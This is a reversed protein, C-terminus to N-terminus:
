FHQGNGNLPFAVSAFRSAMMQRARGGTSKTGFANRKFDTAFYGSVMYEDEPGQGHFKFDDVGLDVTKGNSEAFLDINLSNRAVAGLTEGIIGQANDGAPAALMTMNFNLYAPQTVNFKDLSGPATAWINIELTGTKIDVTRGLHMRFPESALILPSGKIQDIMRYTQEADKDVIQTTDETNVTIDGNDLLVVQVKHHHFQFGIGRIYTGNHNDVFGPFLKMNVQHQQDSYLNYFRDPEGLFEFSRGDFGTLIPDTVGGGSQPLVCVCVPILGTCVKVLGTGCNLGILQANSQIALLLTAFVALATGFTKMTGRRHHVTHRSSCVGSYDYGSQKAEKVGSRYDLLSSSLTL